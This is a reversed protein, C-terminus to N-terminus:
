VIIIKNDYQMEEKTEQHITVFKSINKIRGIPRSIIIIFQGCLGMSIAVKYNNRAFLISGGSLIHGAYWLYDSILLFNM